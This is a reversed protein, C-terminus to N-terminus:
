SNYRKKIEEIAEKGAERIDNDGTKIIKELAPLDSLDGVNGLVFAADQVNNDDNSNLMTYLGEKVKKLVDGSFSVRSILISAGLRINIEPKKLLKPLLVGKEPRNKIIKEIEDIRGDKLMKAFFDAEIEIEDKESNAKQLWELIEERNPSILKLFRNILVTPASMIEFEKVIQPFYATDVIRVNIFENEIALQNLTEVVFACHPCNEATFVIIETKNRIEKLKESTIQKLESEGRSIRSLTKLFPEFENKLPITHYYINNIRFGSNLFNDPPKFSEIEIIDSLKALERVFKEIDKIESGSCDSIEIKVPNNASNEGLNGLIEEATKLEYSSFFGM